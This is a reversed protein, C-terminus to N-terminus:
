FAKSCLILGTKEKNLFSQSKSIIQRKFNPLNNFFAAFWSKQKIIILQLFSKQTYPIFFKAGQINQQFSGYNYRCLAVSYNQTYQVQYRQLCNPVVSIEPYKRNVNSRKSIYEILYVVLVTRIQDLIEGFLTSFQKFTNLRVKQYGVNKLNLIKSFNILVIIIKTFFLFTDNCRDCNPGITVVFYKCIYWSLKSSM